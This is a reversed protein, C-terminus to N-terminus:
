QRVRGLSGPVGISPRRLYMPQLGSPDDAAGMELRRRGLACLAWLRSPQSHLGVVLAAEGRARRLELTRPAAGEGCFITPGTTWGVVEDLGGVDEPRLKAWRGDSQQFLGGAVQDRGADLIPCIPLGTDAYPYAEAELTGVGVLPIGLPMVMGKAASLGVRLASFSGPGLAVAVAELDSTLVGARDLLTEVAPM